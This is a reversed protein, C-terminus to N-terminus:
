IEIFTTANSVKIQTDLELLLKARREQIEDIKKQVGLPDVLETTNEKVYTTVVELPKDEKIKSDKGLISLRMSEATTELQKNKNEIKMLCGDLEVKMKTYLNQEFDAKEDYIGTGRIRGRLSIAGAVTYDGFSTHIMTAANSAVIAADIKQFRQILDMIQQYASEAEKRFDDESIRGEMVKEENHKKVDTFSAKSIKDRIKKVLLDREDLAQTVLMKEAM